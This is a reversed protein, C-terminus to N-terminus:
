GPSKSARALQQPQRAASRQDWWTVIRLRMPREFWLHAAISATITLILYGLYGGPLDFGGLADYFVGFPAHLLYLAYSAEGLLVTARHQTIRALTGSAGALVAILLAFGPLLLVEAIRGDLNDIFLAVGGISALAPLALIAPTTILRGDRVMLQTLFMGLM